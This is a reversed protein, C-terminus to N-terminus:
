IIIGLYQKLEDQSYKALITDATSKSMYQKKIQFYINYNIKITDTQHNIEIFYKQQKNNNWDTFWGEEANLRDIEFQIKILISLMKAKKEARDTDEKLFILGQKIGAIGWSNWFSPNITYDTLRIGVIETEDEPESILSGDARKLLEPKEYEIQFYEPFFELLKEPNEAKIKFWERSYESFDGLGNFKLSTIEENSCFPLVKKVTISKITKSM